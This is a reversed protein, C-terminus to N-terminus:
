YIEQKAVIEVSKQAIATINEWDKSKILTKPTLWSGGVAIVEPCSLYDNFNDINIGGLPIYKVELHKYPESISKLYPLGGIPEAPFLKLCNCGVELALQLETPSAIGPIFPLDCNNGELIINTNLGPSLAFHAGAKKVSEVQELSIGTGAGVLMGPCHDVVASIAEIAVSTRLALEIVSVGGKLLAKSTNIAEEVQDVVLVAMLSRESIHDLIEIKKM